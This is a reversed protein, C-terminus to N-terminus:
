LLCPTEHKVLVFCLLIWCPWGAGTSFNLSNQLDTNPTSPAWRDQHVLIPVVTWLYHFVVAFDELLTSIPLSWSFIFNLAEPKFGERLHPFDQTPGQPSREFMGLSHYFWPQDLPSCYENRFIFTIAVWLFIPGNGAETDSVLQHHPYDRFYKVLMGHIDFGNGM